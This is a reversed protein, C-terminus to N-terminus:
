KKQLVTLLEYIQIQRIIFTRVLVFNLKVPYPLSARFYLKFKREIIPSSLERYLANKGLPEIKSM